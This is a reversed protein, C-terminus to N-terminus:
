DYPEYAVLFNGDVWGSLTQGNSNQFSIQTPVRKVGNIVVPIGLNLIKVNQNKTLSAIPQGSLTAISRVNLTGNAINVRTFNNTGINAILAPVHDLFKSAIYGRVYQVEGNPLTKPISMQYWTENKLGRCTGAVKVTRGTFYGKSFKKVQGIVIDKKGTKDCAEKRVNVDSTTQLIDATSFSSSNILAEVKGTNSLSLIAGLTFLGFIQKISLNMKYVGLTKKNRCITKYYIYNNIDLL